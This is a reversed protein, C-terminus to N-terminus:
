YLVLKAVKNDSFYVEDFYSKTELDIYKDGKYNYTNKIKLVFM